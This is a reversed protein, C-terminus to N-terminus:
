IFKFFVLRFLYIPHYKEKEDIHSASCAYETKISLTQQGNEMKRGYMPM